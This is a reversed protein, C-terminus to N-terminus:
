LYCESNAHMDAEEESLSYRFGKRLFLRKMYRRVPQSAAKDGLRIGLSFLRWLVPAIVCDLLLFEHDSFFWRRKFLDAHVLIDEELEKHAKKVTARSRSKNMIDIRKYWEREVHRIMMRMRARDHPEIPLLPPYPFREDLYCEIVDVHNIVLHRDVLTPIVGAPNVALLEEPPRRPNGVYVKKHMVEKETIVFRIRHNHPCSPHTYLTVSSYDGSNLDVSNKAEQDLM